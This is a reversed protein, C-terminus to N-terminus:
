LISLYTYLKDRQPNPYFCFCAKISNNWFTQKLESHKDLKVHRGLCDNRRGVKYSQKRQQVWINDNIKSLQVIITQNYKPGWWPLYVNANFKNKKPGIMPMHM